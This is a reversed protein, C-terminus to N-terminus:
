CADAARKLRESELEEGLAEIAQVIKIREMVAKLGRLRLWEVADVLDADLDGDDFGPHDLQEALRLHDYPSNLGDPILQEGRGWRPQRGAARDARQYRSLEPKERVVKAVDSGRANGPPLGEPVEGPAREETSPIAM